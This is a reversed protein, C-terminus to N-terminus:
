DQDRRLRDLAAPVRWGSPAEFDLPVARAGQNLREQHWRALSHQPDTDLLAVRHGEAALTAALNAAVTSKGAGGKQQAVAVVFAMGFSWYGAPCSGALRVRNAAPAVM